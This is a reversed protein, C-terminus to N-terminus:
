VVMEAALESWIRRHYDHYRTDNQLAGVNRPRGMEVPIECKISGPRATCVLIKDALAIAEALDHTIFLVTRKDREWLRLLGQELMLKTHADLAGFPEDMLLVPSPMLFTRALAARQRMGHSLQRPYANEFGSLGVMAILERAEERVQAPIVRGESRVEVGFLVNGMVTRWPLLADQAFMYAIDFRGAQPPKGAVSVSGSQQAELGAIINLITTKGCGSPGVIVVFEGAAVKFEADKVALLGGAFRHSLNEVQIGTQASPARVAGIPATMHPTTVGLGLKM